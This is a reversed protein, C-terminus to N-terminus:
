VKVWKSSCLKKEGLIGLPRPLSCGFGHPPVLPLTLSLHHNHSDNIKTVTSQLEKAMSASLIPCHDLAVHSLPDIFCQKSGSNKHCDLLHLHLFCVLCKCTTISSAM